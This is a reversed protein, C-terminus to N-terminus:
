GVCNIAQTMSFKVHISGRKLPWRDLYLGSIIQGLPSRKICTQSYMYLSNVQSFGPRPETGPCRLCKRHCSLFFPSKKISTVVYAPKVKYSRLYITHQTSIVNLIWPAKPYGLPYPKESIVVIRVGSQKTDWGLTNLFVRTKAWHRSVKVSSTPFPFLTTIPNHNYTLVKVV